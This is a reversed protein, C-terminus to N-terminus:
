EEREVRAGLGQLVEFFGPWTKNVAQAGVILAPVGAGYAAVTLAMVIRHDNHAYLPEEPAHLVTGTITVTDGDVEIRAGMKALEGCMSEIRDSEKLRLRGANQITTVGSCFCAMVFLVPGLDPCNALDITTASLLSREFRIGDETVAFKAGCRKLIDLIAKDGQHTDESLGAVTIGGVLSGLVAFFAAQSYDSEVKLDCATYRQPAAVRYCVVGDRRTRATVKVGFRAMADLTMDVYSRSEFPPQVEIVSGAEMLPAAFLLGSIFQSSIDGPLTFAGPRLSGFVTIGGEDQTFQLGQHTFLMRYVEQPRQFLRGAGTFRIKQATLSFVPILFRLTNGSENCFVPRTVTVFGGSGGRGTITVAHEEETVQAGLQRVAGLMARVDQSYEIPELRSTGAALAACLVARHAASKSPPVQVIGGLRSVFLKVNM